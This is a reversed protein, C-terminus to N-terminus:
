VGTKANSRLVAIRSKIEKAMRSNPFERIIQEGADLANDWQKDSVALSFRVGLSQLKKKFIGSAAEQLAIAEQATLYHDLEKLIEISKNTDDNNVAYDWGKLLEKKRQNKKMSLINPLKKVKDSDPYAVLLKEIQNSAEAWYHNAELTEMHAIAHNIQEEETANRYKELTRRLQEALTIYEPKKGMDAIMELATDFDKQHLKGIVAETLGLRDSERYAIAKASESLQLGRSIQKFLSVQKVELEFLNELKQTNERLNFIYEQLLIVVAFTAVFGTIFLFAIGTKFFLSIGADAGSVGWLFLCLCSIAFTVLLVWQWQIVWLGSERKRDM